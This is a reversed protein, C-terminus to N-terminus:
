PQQTQESAPQEGTTKRESAPKMLDRGYVLVVALAIILLAVFCGIEDWGGLAGHGYIITIVTSNPFIM